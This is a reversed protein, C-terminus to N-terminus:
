CNPLPAPSNTAKTSKKVSPFSVWALIRPITSWGRPLDPGHHCVAGADPAFLRCERWRRRRSRSQGERTPFASALAPREVGPIMGMLTKSIAMVAGTNGASVLGQAEGDRVLRAAVRISSDRKNRLAKAANDEMTVVESAHVVRIPLSPWDSYKGLEHRVAEERGVLIVGVDQSRAARVAGFVEPVPASDGGMADVAITIM